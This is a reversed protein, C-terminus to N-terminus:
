YIKGFTKNLWNKIENTISREKKIKYCSDDKNEYGTNNWLKENTSNKGCTYNEMPLTKNDVKVMPYTDITSKCIKQLDERKEPKLLIYCGATNQISMCEANGSNNIRGIVNQTENIPICSWKKSEQDGIYYLGGGTTLSSSICSLLLFIIIVIIM